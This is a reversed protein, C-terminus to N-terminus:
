KWIILTKIKTRNMLNCLYSINKETGLFNGIM